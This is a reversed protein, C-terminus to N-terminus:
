SPKDVLGVKVLVDNVREFVRRQEIEKEEPDTIENFNVVSVPGIHDVSAFHKKIKELAEIVLGHKKFPIIEAVVADLGGPYNDICYYIDYADKENLRNDLAMAKM